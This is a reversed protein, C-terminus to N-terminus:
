DIILHLMPPMIENKFNPDAGKELL